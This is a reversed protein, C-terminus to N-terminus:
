HDTYNSERVFSEESGTRKSHIMLMSRPWHLGIGSRNVRKLRNKKPILFMYWDSPATLTLSKSLGLNNTEDHEDKSQQKFYNHIIRIEM